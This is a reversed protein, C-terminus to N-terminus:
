LNNLPIPTTIAYNSFVVELILDLKYNALKISKSLEEKTDNYDKTEKFEKIKEEYNTPLRKRAKALIEIHEVIVRYQIFGDKLNDKTLCNQAKLLASHIFYDPNIKIDTGEIEDVDIIKTDYENYDEPKNM